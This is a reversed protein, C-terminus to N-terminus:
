LEPVPTIVIGVFLLWIALPDPNVVLVPVTVDTLPVPVADPSVRLPDNVVLPENVKLPV